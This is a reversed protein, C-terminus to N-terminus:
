KETPQLSCNPLEGGIQSMAQRAFPLCPDLQLARRLDKAALDTQSLNLWTIGRNGILLANNPDLALGKGFSSLAATAQRLELQRRGRENWYRSDTQFRDELKALYAEAAEAPMPRMQNVYPRFRDPASEIAQQWIASYSRWHWAAVGLLVVFLATQGRWLWPRLSGSALGIAQATAVCWMASALYIRRDSVIDAAPFISSSPLLLLFGAMIWLGVKRWKPLTMGRWLLAILFFWCAGLLVNDSVYPPELSMGWPFIWLRLYRALSYGQQWLYRWWVIGADLGAGTNALVVTAFIVRLGSLLSFSLMLSIPRWWDGLRSRQWTLLALAVPFAVGEEKALLALAFPLVSWWRKGKQWLIWSMLCFSLCLLTPRASIYLVSELQSPHLLFICAAATATSHPLNTFLVKQLLFANLLHLILGVLRWLLPNDAVSQYSMWFTLTSLPRTVTLDWLLKPGNPSLVLPSNLWYYDDLFFPMSLAVACAGIFLLAAALLWYHSGHSNLDAKNTQYIL